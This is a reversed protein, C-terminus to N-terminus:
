QDLDAPMVRQEHAKEPGAPAAAANEAQRNTAAWMALLRLGDESASGPEASYTIMTLGPTAPLELADFHVRLEGVVPHHFTKAGTRHLRVNHQAWRKRFEDSRTSLEGVLDILCKDMPNRGAETHLMAVAMDAALNWDPYLSQSKHNFFAFRAFNVPRTPDEFAGSYLARGLENFAVIDLRGNQVFAPIGVMSDLIRQVSPHIGKAAQRRPRTAPGAARALNFLHEHEAENLQLARAISELVADSVGALGGREVRTYYEVSVGALLSVEERRLGPVRRIGGFTPLGAQEPTLKARRSALFERIESRNNM